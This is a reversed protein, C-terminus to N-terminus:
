NGNFKEFRYKAMNLFTRHIHLKQGNKKKISDVSDELFKM